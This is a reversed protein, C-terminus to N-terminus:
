DEEQIQVFIKKAPKDIAYKKIYLTGITVIDSVEKYRYTGKTEKELEFKARIM